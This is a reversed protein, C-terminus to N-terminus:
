ATLVLPDASLPAPAPESSGGSFRYHPLRAIITTTVVLAGGIVLLALDYNHFRDNDDARDDVQAKQDQCTPNWDPDPCYDARQHSYGM